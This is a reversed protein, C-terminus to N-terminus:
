EARMIDNYLDAFQEGIHRATDRTEFCFRSSLDTYTLTYTTCACDFVSRSPVWEFWPYYKWQSSKSYDPKWDGNAAKQIIGLKYFAIIAKGTVESLGVVNPLFNPDTGTIECAQKFSKIKTAM